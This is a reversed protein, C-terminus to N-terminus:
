MPLDIPPVGRKAEVRQTTLAGVTEGPYHYITALEETNFVFPKSKMLLIDTFPKRGRLYKYFVKKRKLKMRKRRPDYWKGTTLAKSQVKFSNLDQTNFQRLVGNIAAFNMMDFEDLRGIYAFRLVTEFGIKGINRE